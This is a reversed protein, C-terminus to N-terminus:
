ARLRDLSRALRRVAREADALEAGGGTRALRRISRHAAREADENDDAAGAPQGAAAGAAPQPKENPDYPKIKSNVTPKDGWPVPDDGRDTLVKNVTRVGHELDQAERKLEYEKDESVFPEFEIRISPDFDRAIQATWAEQILNAIPLVAYRDFVWQNTEASSRDGSVVLGLVSKPTFYAMLQEDRFYELLPVVDKGSEMALQVLEYLPPLVAPLGVRDGSRSDYAKRWQAYLADLAAQNFAAAGAQAQLVSRPTADKQYHRRLHLGAFKLADAAVGTPALYGESRWPFEPDPIYCRAVVDAPVTRQSGTGTQMAYGTVVGREVVPAIMAPPIPHLEVPRGLRNGVKLLCADGPNLVWQSVLFLLQSRLFTPHPRDLLAKLPHDDLVEDVVTGDEVRRSVVVRPNLSAVRNAIARSATANFGSSERLLTAHDPQSPGGLGVGYYPAAPPHFDIAGTAARAPRRRLADAFM